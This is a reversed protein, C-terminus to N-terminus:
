TASRRALALEIHAATARRLAPHAEGSAWAEAMGEKTHGAWDTGTLARLAKAFRHTPVGRVLARFRERRRDIESSPPAARRSEREHLKALKALAGRLTEIMAERERAELCLFAHDPSTHCNIERQAGEAGAAQLTAGVTIYSIFHTM